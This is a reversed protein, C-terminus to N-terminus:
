STVRGLLAQMHCFEFKLHEEHGSDQERLIGQGRHLIRLSRNLISSASNSAIANMPTSNGKLRRM